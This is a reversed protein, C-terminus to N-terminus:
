SNMVQWLLYTSGLYQLAGDIHLYIGFSMSDGIDNIYDKVENFDKSVYAIYGDESNAIVYGGNKLCLLELADEFYEATLCLKNWHRRMSEELDETIEEDIITRVGNILGCELCGVRYAGDDTQIAYAKRGCRPCINYGEEARITNNINNRKIM